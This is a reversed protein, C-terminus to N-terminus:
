KEVSGFVKLVWIEWEVEFIFLQFMIISLMCADILAYLLFKTHFELPLSILKFNIQFLLVFVLQTFKENM